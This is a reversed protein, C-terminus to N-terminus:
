VRLNWARNGDKHAGARDSGQGNRFQRRGRLLDWSGTGRNRRLPESENQPAAEPNRVFAAFRADLAARLKSRDSNRVVSTGGSVAVGQQELTARLTAVYLSAPSRVAVRQSLPEGRFPVQGTITVKDGSGAAIRIDAKTGAPSTTVSSEYQLFDSVPRIAVSAAAGPNMGPSVELTLLNENFQLATVPAAYGYALDDWSWGHGLPPEAFAGDDGVIKGEIRLIGKQKLIGAWEKFVAFPDGGNFRAATSPDGSGVVVLSGRLVGDSIEGETMIPTQFRFDPGLRTLAAAATVVKNNSAPMFLRTSNREYLIQGNDLSAVEVGWFANEFNVDDFIRGLDSRLRDVADPPPRPM